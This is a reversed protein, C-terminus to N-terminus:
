NTFSCSMFFSQHGSGCDLKIFLGEALSITGSNTDPFVCRDNLPNVIIKKVGPFTELGQMDIKNDLHGIDCIISIKKMKRMNDVIIIDKKHTAKLFIDVTSVVDELTLILLDEMLAQLACITDIKIVIVRAGIGKLTPACGKGDDGFGCVFVVKSAIMVYTARMLGDPFSDRCGYLNDFQLILFLNMILVVQM